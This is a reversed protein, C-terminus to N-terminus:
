GVLPCCRILLKGEKDLQNDLLAQHGEFALPAQAINALITGCGQVFLQALLDQLPFDLHSGAAAAGCLLATLSARGCPTGAAIAAQQSSKLM